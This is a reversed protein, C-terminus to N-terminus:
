LNASRKEKAAQILANFLKQSAPEFLARLEPHWQVGLMFDYEPHEVSEICGDKSRASVKLLGADAISQHHISNTLLEPHPFIRSLVTDPLIDVHHGSFQITNSLRFGHINESNPEFNVLHGGYKVSLLQSGRCVALTPIDLEAALNLLEMELEDRESNIFNALDRPANYLTPDIDEGGTLLLADLGEVMKHLESRRSPKITVVQAGARFLALDYPLRAYQLNDPWRGSVALGVKVSRRKSPQRTLIIFPLLLAILPLFLVALFMYCAIEIKRNM